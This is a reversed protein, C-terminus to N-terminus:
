NIQPFLLKQINDDMFNEKTVVAYEVPIDPMTKGHLLDMAAYISRYGMGYGNIAVIADVIGNEFGQLNALSNGWVVVVLDKGRGNQLKDLAQLIGDSSTEDLAVLLNTEKDESLKKGTISAAKNSDGFCYATQLQVDPYQEFEERIGRTVETASTTHLLAGIVLCDVSKHVLLPLVADALSRGVATFSTMLVPVLDGSPDISNYMTLVQIGKSRATRLPPLLLKEDSPAIVIADYGAEVAQRVYVAQQRSDTENVPAFFDVQCGIEDRAIRAGNKIEGWVQGGQMMTIFAIKSGHDTEGAHRSCGAM